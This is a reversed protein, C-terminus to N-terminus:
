KDWFSFYTEQNRQYQLHVRVSVLNTVLQVKLEQSIPRSLRVGNLSIYVGMSLTVPFLSYVEPKVRSSIKMSIGNEPAMVM